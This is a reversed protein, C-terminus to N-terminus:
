QTIKQKPMFIDAVMKEEQEDVFITYSDGTLKIDQEYAVLLLKDYAFKLKTEVDTFRVYLCEKVKLVSEQFYPQEIHNIFTNSQRLLSVCMCFQGNEDVSTKTHQIIPGIPSSGKSKIYNEMQEVTKVFLSFDDGEMKCGIVNNLRLTKDKKVDLIHSM